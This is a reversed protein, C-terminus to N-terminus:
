PALLWYKLVQATPLESSGNPYAMPDAALLPRDTRVTPEARVTLEARM